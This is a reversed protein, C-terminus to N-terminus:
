GQLLAQVGLTVVVGAIMGVVLAATSFTNRTIGGNKNDGGPDLDLYTKGGDNTVRLTYGFKGQAPSPNENRAKLTMGGNLVKRPTFVDWVSKTPCVGDGLESWLTENVLQNDTPFKYGLNNPDKLDFFVWFGSHGNNKFILDNQTGKPLSGPPDPEVTFDGKQTSNITITVRVDKPGPPVPM